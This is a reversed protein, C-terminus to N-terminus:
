SAVSATVGLSRVEQIHQNRPLPISVVTSKTGERITTEVPEDFFDEGAVAPHKGPGPVLRVIVKVDQPVADRLSVEVQVAEGSGVSDQLFRAKVDGSSDFTRVRTAVRIPGIDEVRRWLASYDLSSGRAVVGLGDWRPPKSGAGLPITLMARFSASDDDRGIGHYGAGLKLWPHPRWDLGVRAGTTWRASGDADEWRHASAKLGITTTLDLRMVLELGELAREEYGRRAARWSTTPLFYRLSGTGWRGAYDVVPTMVRHGLEASHLYLLSVGVVALNPGGSLAFRRTVGHRLDNRISGGGDQWRTIGQQLFLSSGASPGDSSASISFPVVADLVGEFGVGTSTSSWALDGVLQFREGFAGKGMADAYRLGEDVMFDLGHRLLCRAGVSADDTFETGCSSAVTWSEAQLREVIDALAPSSAGALGAMLWLFRAYRAMRRVTTVM